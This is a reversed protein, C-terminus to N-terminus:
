LVRKEPVFRQLLHACNESGLDMSREIQVLRGLILLQVEEYCKRRERSDGSIQPLTVIAEGIVEHVRKRGLTFTKPGSACPGPLRQADVPRQPGVAAHLEVLLGLEIELFGESYLGQARGRSK